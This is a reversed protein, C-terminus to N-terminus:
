VTVVVGIFSGAGPATRKSALGAVSGTCGAGDDNKAVAGVLVVKSVSFFDPGIGSKKPAALAM